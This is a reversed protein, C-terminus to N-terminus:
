NEQASVSLVPTPKGTAGPLVVGDGDEGVEGVGSAV